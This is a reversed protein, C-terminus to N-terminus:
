ERCEAIASTWSRSSSAWSVALQPSGSGAPTHATRSSRQRNALLRGSSVEATGDKPKESVRGGKWIPQEAFGRQVPRSELWQEIEHWIPIAERQRLGHRESATWTKTRQEIAYLRQYLSIIQACLVPEHVEAKVFERRAHWNCSAHSIRGASRQEIHTYAGYADAVVTGQFERLREDVVSHSRTLSWHFLNYPAGKDLGAFLWAYSTASGRKNQEPPEDEDPPKKSKGRRNLQAQQEESLSNRTLLLVRTEDLLVISQRLVQQWMQNVLPQTVPVSHNFMDNITSRSPFWGCQAFWDQQRYTPQHFAYKLAIMSAIVSFDYRCGEVIALDAPAVKVGQKRNVTLWTSGASSASSTSM